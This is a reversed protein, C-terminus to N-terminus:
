QNPAPAPHWHLAPSADTIQSPHAWSGVLRTILTVPPRLAPTAEVRLALSQDFLDIGGFGALNGNPGNLTAQTLTCNGHSITATLALTTFPTQGHAMSFVTDLPHSTTLATIIGPLSLGNMVGNQVKLTANGSLTAAWTQLTYGFAKLNATASIQGTPLSFPFAYQLNLSSADLNPIALAASLVPPAADPLKLDIDGTISSNGLSAKLNSLSAEDPALTLTATSPGFIDHGAYLVQTASLHVQGSVPLKGTIVMHTPFAPLPLIGASIQGNLQHNKLSLRGSANLLGASLIFDTLEYSDPAATFHASLSLSGPGPFALGPDNAKALCPQTSPQFPYGALPAMRSCGNILGLTKLATIADPIHLSIAGEASPHTLNILPTTTFTFPGLKIVAAGSMSSPSGATAAIMTLRQDLLAQPLKLDPALAKVLPTAFPLNLFLHASALNFNQDLVLSGGAIGNYLNATLRRINLSKDLDADIFLNSLQVAGLDAHAVTLEGDASFHEDSNLFVQRLLPALKLLVLHDFQLEFAAHHASFIINGGVHDNGVTGEISTLQPTQRTGQLKAHLTATAWNKDSSLGFGALFSSFDPAFFNLHGSLAGDQALLIDGKLTSAGPANLVINELAEGQKSNVFDAQLSPINQGAITVNSLALTARVPFAPPLLFPLNSINNLDLNQGVLNAKLLLPKLTLTASGNLVANGQQSKLDQVDLENATLQIQATSTINNDTHLTLQGTLLSQPDLSGNLDATIGKLNAHAFFPTGGLSATPGISLNLVLPAHGLNGTGVMHVRGGAGTQLDADVDTFTVTGIRVQGNHIQAHLAALWPPPAIDNIGNPIPWPFSIVPSELRLTRVGFQGHLLTALSLDLSLANAAIIEHDPGSITIGTATIQPRPLYSLSLKGSIRVSRGTLQSVFSEITARHAPSAVYAPLTLLGALVAVGVLLLPVVWFLLKRVVLFQSDTRQEGSSLAIARFDKVPSHRM